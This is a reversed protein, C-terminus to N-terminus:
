LETSFIKFLTGVLTSDLAAKEKAAVTLSVVTTPQYRWIGLFSVGGNV